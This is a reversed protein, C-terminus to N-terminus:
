CRCSFASDWDFIAVAKSCICPIFDDIVINISQAALGSARGGRWLRLEYKGDANLETSSFLSEVAGQGVYM